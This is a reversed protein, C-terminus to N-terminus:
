HGIARNLEEISTEWEFANHVKFYNGQDYTYGYAFKAFDLKTEEWEMLDTIEKVQDAFLCNSQTVQKAISLRSEDWTKSAITSKAAAFDSPEMPWPCGYPGAYGPMVYHNPAPAPAPASSSTTTTVMTSSSEEYYGDSANISVSGGGGNGQADISINMSVNGAQGQPATSSTTTTTTTTQSQASPYQTAPHAAPQAPRPPPAAQAQAFSTVSILRMVYLENPDSYDQKITDGDFENKVESKAQRAWKAVQNDKRPRINFTYAKGSELFLNKNVEGLGQDEFIIKAKYNEAPIEKLAVNTQPDDNYRLGNLIVFFRQGDETFLTLNSTQASSLCPALVALLLLFTLNRM